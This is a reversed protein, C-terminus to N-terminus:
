RRRRSRPPRTSRARCWAPAPSSPSCGRPSESAASRSSPIFSSRSGPRPTPACGSCARPASCTSATGTRRRSCCGPRRDPRVRLGPRGHDRRDRRAARSRLRAGDRPRAHARRRRPHDDARGSARRPHDARGRARPRPRLRAAAARDDADRLQHRRRRELDPADRRRDPAGQAVGAVTRGRDRHVGQRHVASLARARRRSGLRDRDGLRKGRARRRAGLAAAGAARRHDRAARARGRLRGHLRGPEPEPRAGAGRRLDAARRCASDWSCTGRRVQGGGSAFRLLRVAGHNGDHDEGLELERESLIMGDSEVGRLKAKGLESGDPLRAGPLAVAVTQGGAVNPAGCVITRAGDGTEVECVSLRDANPHPEASLVEGVVFGEPSPVGIRSVREVEVARM